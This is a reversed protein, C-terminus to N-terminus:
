DNRRYHKNLKKLIRKNIKIKSNKRLEAIWEKELYNQYDNMVQGKGDDLKKFTYKSANKTFYDKLGLSDTSSKNWIKQQMLEFLLLGDKYEKLTNAYEPETHILNEKFYKLIQEDKFMDFLIPISKHRRNRIYDSFVVQKINKNNISLIVSQLSDRSLGRVKEDNFKDRSKQNVVIKYQKKLKNLVADDSLRSRGSGKVKSAIEKEMEEFSKVPYKDLLKVIHYGFRTKVIKYDGKNKLSFAANEFSKVMRGTGFKQLVGGKEKSGTDNSFQSALSKFDVGSKLKQYISEIKSKGIATTDTILIHATKVEGKSLRTAVPKVIHYGFRTKFPMSVEGIKTTYAAQEFPFLMMFASFYGLDGNNVRVRMNKIGKYKSFEDKSIDIAVKDFDEGNVVRKRADMIKNYFALTDKPSIGKPLRVLIHSARLENKTRYYTDKILNNLFEKDQLYPASLQNKYTELERKYARATDLKLHYAQKIKLKYNIYLDLYSDINNKEDDEVLDLNKEYVRKFEGVTTPEKDISFLVKKDKQAQLQLSLNVIVLLVLKKM